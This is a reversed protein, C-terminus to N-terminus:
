DLVTAKYEEYTVRKATFTGEKFSGVDNTNRITGQASDEGLQVKIEVIEVLSRPNSFTYVGWIGNPPVTSHTGPWGDGLTDGYNFQAQTGTDTTYVWLYCTDSYTLDQTASEAVVSDFTGKYCVGEPPLAASATQEAPANAQGVVQNVSDEVFTGPTIGFLGWTPSSWALMGVAAALGVALAAVIVAATKAAASLGVAMGTAAGGPGFLAAVAPAKAWTGVSPDFLM